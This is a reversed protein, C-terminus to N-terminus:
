CPTAIKGLVAPRKAGTVSPLNAPVNNLREHALVAFAVAEKSDVGIQHRCPLATLRRSGLRDNLEAVILPHHAGGGCLYVRDLEPLYHRYADAISHAVLSVLTRLLNLASIEPHIRRLERVYVQGFKERGTSKPLPLRFYPDTLLQTLLRLDCRGQQSLLGDQDYSQRGATLLEVMENLVANGPGTDFALVAATPDRPLFTVNGIGGINQIAINAAPDAYLIRDLYPVLPAGTGGVAIDAARFDSIVLTQTMKAMVDAEGIQLTSHRDVHCITQGHSGIADVTGPALGFESCFRLIMEGFLRGLDFNLRCIDDTGATFASQIRKRWDDSFPYTTFHRLQINLHPGSGRLRVLALDVGDLSTGSMLGIILREEKQSVRIFAEM